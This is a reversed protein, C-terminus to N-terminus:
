PIDLMCMCTSKKEPCDAGWPKNAYSPRNMTMVVNPNDHLSARTYVNVHAYVRYSDHL